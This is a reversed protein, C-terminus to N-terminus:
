FYKFFVPFDLGRAAVDTAVLICCKGSQFKEFAEVRKLQSLSGHICVHPIRCDLLYRGIEDVSNRTSSFILTKTNQHIITPLNSLLWNWKEDESNVVQFLQTINENAQGIRGINVRVCNVSLEKRTLDELNKMFTASFLLTQRDPRIQTLIARVMGGFGMDLMRDAEDLVVMSCNRMRVSRTKILDMLRGPTAILLHPNNKKITQKMQWMQTGGFVGQCNVGLGKLLEKTVGLIQLALERTPTMLIGIPGERENNILSFAEQKLIHQLLPIIFAITKGSGTLAIGILDVGTLVIPIAQSQIPTPHLKGTKKLNNKLGPHIPLHSFSSFPAPYKDEEEEEEENKCNSEEEDMENNEKRVESTSNWSTIHIMDRIRHFYSSSSNFRSEIIRSNEELRMNFIQQTTLELEEENDSRVAMDRVDRVIPEYEIESHDIPDLGLTLSNKKAEEAEEREKRAAQQGYFEEFGIENKRKKKNVGSEDVGDYNDESLNLVEPKDKEQGMTLNEEEVQQHIGSMFAELPDVGGDEKQNNEIPLSTPIIPEDEEDSEEEFYTKSKNAKVKSQLRWMDEMSQREDQSYIKQNSSSSKKENSKQRM